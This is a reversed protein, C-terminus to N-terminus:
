STLPRLPARTGACPDPAKIGRTTAVEEKTGGIEQPTEVPRAGGHRVPAPTPVPNNHSRPSARNRERIFRGAPASIRGMGRTPGDRAILSQGRYEQPCKEDGEVRRWRPRLRAYWRPPHTPQVEWRCVTADGRQCIRRGPSEKGRECSCEATQGGP